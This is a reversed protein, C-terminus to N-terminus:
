RSCLVNNMVEYTTSMYSLRTALDANVPVCVKVGGYGHELWQKSECASTVCAEIHEPTMLSTKEFTSLPLHGDIWEYGYQSAQPGAGSFMLGTLVGACACEEIHRKATWPNRDEIVSRGWNITIGVNFERALEIEEELTLFGKEPSQVEKYRDCHEIVLRISNHEWRNIEELSAKMADVEAIKSPASHIQVYRIDQSGRLQAFDDLAYFANRLYTLAERRGSSSPSALGFSPNVALSQMTGPILTVNNHHWHTPLHAALWKRESADALEGPFPLEAGSIWEEHGLLAYYEERKAKDSPQSAYVGAVTTIGAM